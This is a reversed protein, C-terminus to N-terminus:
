AGWLVHPLGPWGHQLWVARAPSGGFCAWTGAAAGLLQQRSPPGTKRQKTATVRKKDAQKELVHTKNMQFSPSLTLIRVHELGREAQM